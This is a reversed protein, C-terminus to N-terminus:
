AVEGKLKIAGNCFFPVFIIWEFFLTFVGVLLNNRKFNHSPKKSSRYGIRNVATDVKSPGFSLNMWANSTNLKRDVISSNGSFYRFNMRFIIVSRFLSADM